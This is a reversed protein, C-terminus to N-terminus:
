DHSHPTHPNNAPLTTLPEAVAQSPLRMLLVEAQWQPRLTVPPLAAPLVVAEGRTFTLPQAGGSEASEAGAYEVVAGGGLCVLVQVSSKGPAASLLVPSELQYREVAFYPSSLLVRHTTAPTAILPPTPRAVGATGYVSSSLHPGAAQATVWGANTKERIAAMGEELHLQRPRGYDYLRYTLDCNQQTEVFIANAGIAHVTGAGVYIMEGAHVDIWNLMHEAQNAEHSM